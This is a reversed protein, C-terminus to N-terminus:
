HTLLFLPNTDQPHMLQQADTDEQHHHPPTHTHSSPTQDSFLPPATPTSYPYPLFQTLPKAFTCSLSKLAISRLIHCRFQALYLCSLHSLCSRVISHGYLYFERQVILSPGSWSLSLMWTERVQEEENGLYRGTKFSNM